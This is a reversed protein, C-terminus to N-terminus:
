GVGDPLEGPTIFVLVYRSGLGAYNPDSTGQTDNFFFDGSFGLYLDRVIRDQNRCITDGVILEDNVSLNMYLGTVRQTLVIQCAQNALSITFAQSPVNDTPVIQM